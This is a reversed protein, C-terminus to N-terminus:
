SKLGSEEHSSLCDDIRKLAHIFSKLGSEEHSSLCAIQICFSLVCILKLGSEEHSSLSRQKRLMIIDNYIEIWEGWTLLSGVNVVNLSISEIEIWEGWTLLSWRWRGRKRGIYFKLGSEEHSSLGKQTGESRNNNFKLGSEEHSSLREQWEFAEMRIRNWDVRRMHPSVDIHPLSSFLLFKLGSEEHSSLCHSSILLQTVGKNWDVRRMHPSVTVSEVKDFLALNWDVRRMHPSVSTAKKNGIRMKWKLGSEEHSSLSTASLTNWSETKNWDVRRM